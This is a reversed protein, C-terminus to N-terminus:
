GSRDRASSTPRASSTRALATAAGSTAPRGAFSIGIWWSGPSPASSESGVEGSHSPTGATVTGSDLAGLETGAASEVDTGRAATRTARVSSRSNTLSEHASGVTSRLAPEGLANASAAATWNGTFVLARGGM